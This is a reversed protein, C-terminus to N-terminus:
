NFFDLMDCINRGFKAWRNIEKVCFNLLKIRLIPLEYGLKVFNNTLRELDKKFNDYLGNVECFRIVQSTFVGYSQHAPINGRLDPYNIVEFDFDLRKDYSKYLYMNNDVQITLDLYHCLDGITTEKLVM